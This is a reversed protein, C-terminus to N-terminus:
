EPREARPATAVEPLRRVRNEAHGPGFTEDWAATGGVKGPLWPNTGMSPFDTISDGVSLLRFGPLDTASMLDATIDILRQQPYELRPAPRAADFDAATAAVSWSSVACAIIKVLRM